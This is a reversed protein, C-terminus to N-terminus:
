HGTQYIYPTFWLSILFILTVEQLSFGYFISKMCVNQTMFLSNLWIFALVAHFYSDMLKLISWDVQLASSREMVDKFGQEYLSVQVCGMNPLETSFPVEDWMELWQGKGLVDAGPVKDTHNVEFDIAPVPYSSLFCEDVLWASAEKQFLKHEEWIARLM